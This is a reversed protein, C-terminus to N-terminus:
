DVIPVRLLFIEESLGHVWDAGVDNLTVISCDEGITLSTSTLGPRNCTNWLVRYVFSYHRSRKFVDETLNLAVLFALM